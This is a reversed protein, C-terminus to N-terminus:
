LLEPRPGWPLSLGRAAGREKGPAPSFLVRGAPTMASLRWLGSGRSAYRREPGPDPLVPEAASRQAVESGSDGNGRGSQASCGVRAGPDRARVVAGGYERFRCFRAGGMICRKGRSVRTREGPKQVQCSRRAPFTTAPRRECCRTGLIGTRTRLKRDPRQKHVASSASDSHAQAVCPCPRRVVVCPERLHTRLPRSGRGRSTM